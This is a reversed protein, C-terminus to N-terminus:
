ETIFIKIVGCIAASEFVAVIEGGQFFAVKGESFNFMDADLDMARMDGADNTDKFLVKYKNM